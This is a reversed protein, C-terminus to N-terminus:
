LGCIMAPRVWVMMSDSDITTMAASTPAFPRPTGTTRASLVTFMALPKSEPRQMTMRAIMRSRTNREPSSPSLAHGGDLEVIDGDDEALGGLAREDHGVLAPGTALDARR